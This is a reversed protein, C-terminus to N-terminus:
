TRHGLRAKWREINESRVQGLAKAVRDRAPQLRRGVCARDGGVLHKDHQTFRDRAVFPAVHEGLEKRARLL